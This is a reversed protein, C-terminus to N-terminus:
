IANDILSEKEASNQEPIEYLLNAKQLLRFYRNKIENTKIEYIRERCTVYLDFAILALTDIRSEFELLQTAINKDGRERELEQRVVKKLQFVFSTAQSPTFDQIARVKIMRELFSSVRTRDPGKVLEEFLEEIGERIASGVPNGFPDKEKSLFQAAEEPYTELVLDFWKRLIAKKKQSLIQEIQM